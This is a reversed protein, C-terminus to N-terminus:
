TTAAAGANRKSPPVFRQGYTKVVSATKAPKRGGPAAAPIRVGGRTSVADGRAEEGDEDPQGGAGDHEEAADSEALAGAWEKAHQGVWETLLVPAEDAKDARRVHPMPKIETESLEEGDAGRKKVPTDKMVVQLGRDKLLASLISRKYGVASAASQFLADREREADKTKLTVGEALADGLEKPTKGLKVYENYETLKDGTLVVAGAPPVLGTLRLVEAQAAELDAELEATEGSGSGGGARLKKVKTRARLNDHLLQAVAAESDVSGDGKKYKDLFARARSKLEDLNPIPM